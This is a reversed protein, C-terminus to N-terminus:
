GLKEAPNWYVEHTNFQDHYEDSIQEPRAKIEQLCLVDPNEQKIWKWVGKNLAARLGNVNWTTIRM